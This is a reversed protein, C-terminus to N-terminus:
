NLSLDFRCSVFRRISENDLAKLQDVTGSFQVGGDFLAYVKDVVPLLRRLDHSVILCTPRFEQHLELILDMIISSAVPDLGATPDDLFLYQPRAVLARALSVRRRMGGSLQGPHKFVARSLGVRSLIYGVEDRLHTRVSRSLTSAPVRGSVLPFAINDFVTLSDFLAGEQFMLSLSSKHGDASVFSVVGHQPFMTRGIIKLLTSKGGGGPGILGGVCATPLEFSVNRLVPNHGFSKSIQEVRLM